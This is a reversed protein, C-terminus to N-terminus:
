CGSKTGAADQLRQHAASYDEQGFIASGAVLWEAGAEVCARATAQNVGGDVQLVPRDGCMARVEDLKSLLAPLFQQGGFGAKITMVLVLDVMEAVRSIASVPTDRDIAIGAAMGLDHIQSVAGAADSVAEIHFTILDAGAAHFDRIYKWPEVMMLHVDLPLDTVQRFGRVVTMGYSFNPVFVGDMVDLHLARFDASELRATESRLDGFNCLLMSPLFLPAQGRLSLIKERRSM